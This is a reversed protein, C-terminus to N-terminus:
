SHARFLQGKQRGYDEFTRRRAVTSAVIPFLVAIEIQKWSRWWSQLLNIRGVAGHFDTGCFAVRVSVHYNRSRLM